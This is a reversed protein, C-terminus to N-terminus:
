LNCGLDYFKKLIIKEKDFAKINKLINKSVDEKAYPNVSDKLSNIFEQSLAKRLAETIGFTGDERCGIVTAARERGQQRSGINVTPTQLSPAEIIGSSSNGVVVDAHKVASLYRIQGMSSFAIARYKHNNVYQDIMKNIVRGHTDANAKTFILKLNPFEEFSQLLEQFILGKDDDGLTEPHYTVVACQEGLPFAIERELEERSLLQFDRINEIGLAGVHFVREPDEGMQIVRQRSKETSVFHLCSMKTMAHRLAEDIAGETTEGGHLHAIPVRCVIAAAAAMFAEYRDGLLILLSPRMRELAEGFGMVGVGMSKCIDAPTDSSLQMDVKEDIVFGDKEIIEATAGFDASLHAGSVLLQLSLEDDNKIKKLLPFLLGYEARTGTFVCIKRM